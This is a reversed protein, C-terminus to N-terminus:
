RSELGADEGTADRLALPFLAIFEVHSGSTSLRDFCSDARSASRKVFEYNRTRHMLGGGGDLVEVREVVFM